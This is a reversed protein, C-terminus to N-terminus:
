HRLIQSSPFHGMHHEAPVTQWSGPFVSPLLHVGGAVGAKSLRCSFNRGTPSNETRQTKSDQLFHFNLPCSWGEGRWGSAQDYGCSRNGTPWARRDLFPWQFSYLALQRLPAVRVGDKRAGEEEGVGPCGGHQKEVGQTVQLQKRVKLSLPSRCGVSSWLHTLIKLHLQYCM